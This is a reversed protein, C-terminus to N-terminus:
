PNVQGALRFFAATAPATLKVRFKRLGPPLGITTNEVVTLGASQWAASGLTPTWQVEYSAGVLVDKVTFEFLHEGNAAVLKPVKQPESVTPDNGTIFEILNAMGDTDSDAGQGWLAGETANALMQNSGFRDLVWQAYSSAAIVKLNVPLNVNPRVPDNSTIAITQTYNGPVLSATNVSLPISTTQGAAVNGYTVQPLLWQPLSAKLAYYANLRGNSAVRNALTALSDSGFLLLQKMQAVTLASNQSLLLSAAGTVHPAAMSTGSLSAFQGGPRLSLIGVGPAALDVGVAGYNSFYALSDNTDTAAVAVIADLNYGAPYQPATDNDSSNNGASAVFLSGAQGASQIANYLAQSYAGGGWSNNSIRAGMRSAYSVASVADSTYGSGTDSLFKVPLIRANWCVGAVGLANNGRAAITGAVHTGHGHGDAPDNDRNYFDWGNVDDIYGNQDDDIGNGAIESTNAWMNAALEPHTRDVGTDIVAVVNAASGTTVSWAHVADIGGSGAQPSRMAWLVNFLSDNPSQSPDTPPGHQTAVGKLVLNWALNAGGSNGLTFTQTGTQNALMTVELAPPTLSIAPVGLGTGTVPVTVTPKAADNSSINLSASVPGMAQPQFTVVAMFTGGPLVSEPYNGSVRFQANTSTLNQVNLTQSGSNSMTLYWQHTSGLPLAPFYLSAPSVSLRPGVVPANESGYAYIKVNDVGVSGTTTGSQHFRIDSLDGGSVDFRGKYKSVGDVFVEWEPKLMDVNVAIQVKQRVPYTGLTSPTTVYSQFATITGNSRFNLSQVGGAGDFQLTFNGALDIYADFELRYAPAYRGVGFRVQQYGSGKLELAPGSLTGIQARVTPTGFNISSPAYPGAVATLQDLTHKPADWTVDYILPPAPATPPPTEQGEVLVAINDIMFPSSTAVVKTLNTFSSNFTFTQFDALSGTGDIVGDTAFSQTVTGGGVKHGVFTVTKAPYGSAYESLDVALMTFPLNERHRVTLNSEGTISRAYYSGNNPYSATYSSQVYIGGDTGVVFNQEELYPNYMSPGGTFHPPDFGLVRAGAPLALLREESAATLTAVDFVGGDPQRMTKEDLASEPFTAVGDVVDVLVTAEPIDSGYVLYDAEAYATTGSANLKRVAEDAGAITAEPLRVIWPGDPSLREGLTMGGQAVAGRFADDSVGAKPQVIVHDAVRAIPKQLAPNAANPDAVPLTGEFVVMPYKGTTRVLQSRRMSGDAQPRVATALVVPNGLRQWVSSAASSKAPVAGAAKSAAAPEVSPNVRAPIVPAMVAGGAPGAGAAVTTPASPSTATVPGGSNSPSGASGSRVNAKTAPVIAPVSSAPRTGEPRAAAQRDAAFHSWGWGALLLLSGSM